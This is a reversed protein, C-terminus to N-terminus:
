SCNYGILLSSHSLGPGTPQPSNHRGQSSIKIIKVEQAAHQKLKPRSVLQRMGLDFVHVVGDSNQEHLVSDSARHM